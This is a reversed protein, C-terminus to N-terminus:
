NPNVIDVKDVNDQALNTKTKVIIVENNWFLEATLPWVIECLYRM